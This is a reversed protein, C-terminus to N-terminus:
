LDIADKVKRKKARATIQGTQLAEDRLKQKLSPTLLKAATEEEMNFDKCYKLIADLYPMRKTSVIEEIAKSFMKNTLIEM